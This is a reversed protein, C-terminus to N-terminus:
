SQGGALQRNMEQIRFLVHPFTGGVSDTLAETYSCEGSALHLTTSTLACCIGSFTYCMLWVYADQHISVFSKLRGILDGFFFIARYLYLSARFSYPFNAKCYFRDDRAQVQVFLCSPCRVLLLGM